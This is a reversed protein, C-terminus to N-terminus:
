ISLRASIVEGSDLMSIEFYNTTLWYFIHYNGRIAYLNPFAKYVDDAPLMVKSDPLWVGIQDPTEGPIHILRVNM